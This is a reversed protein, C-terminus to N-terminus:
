SAGLGPQISNLQRFGEPWAMESFKEALPTNDYNLLPLVNGTLRQQVDYGVNWHRVNVMTRKSAQASQLILYRADWVPGGAGKLRLDINLSGVADPLSAGGACAIALPPNM